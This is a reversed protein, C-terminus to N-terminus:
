FAQFFRGMEIMQADLMHKGLHISAGRETAASLLKTVEPSMVVEAVMHHPHIRGPDIPLPDDPRLGLSTANVILHTDALDQSDDAYVDIDHVRRVALALERAKEFSRNSIALRAVGADALAFAIARAAGGSGLLLANRHKVEYGNALLGKVLGIGDFNEGILRGAEVRITNVSGIRQATESLVDCFPVFAIKHPVTIILGALNQMQRAGDVFAALGGAAVHAPILVGDFASQRLRQNFVEPTRLHYVPDAVIFFPRTNGTINAAM